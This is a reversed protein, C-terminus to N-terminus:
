VWPEDRVVNLVKGVLLAHKTNMEKAGVVVVPDSSAPCEEVLFPHTM